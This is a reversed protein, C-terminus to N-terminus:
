RSQVICCWVFLIIADRLKNSLSIVHCFVNSTGKIARLSCTTREFRILLELFGVFWRWFKVSKYSKKKNLSARAFFVAVFVAVHPAWFRSNLTQPLIKLSNLLLYNDHFRNSFFSLVTSTHVKWFFLQTANSLFEWIYPSFDFMDLCKVQDAANCLNFLEATLNLGCCFFHPMYKRQHLELLCFVGGRCM